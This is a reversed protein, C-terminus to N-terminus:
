LGRGLAWLLSPALRSLELPKLQLTPRHLWYHAHPETAGKVARYSSIEGIKMITHVNRCLTIVLFLAAGFVLTECDTEVAM